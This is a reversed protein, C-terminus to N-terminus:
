KKLKVKVSNGQSVVLKGDSQVVDIRVSATKYGSKVIRIEHRGASLGRIEFSGASKGSPTDLVAEVERASTQATRVSIDAGNLGAGSSSVVTGSLSAGKVLKLTPVSITKGNKVSFKQGQSLTPKGTSTSSNVWASVFGETGLYNVKVRYTDPRVAAAYTGNPKVDVQKVLEGNTAYATVVVDRLQKSSLGDIRGSLTGTPVRTKAIQYASRDSKQKKSKDVVDVRVYYNTNSTLKTLVVSTATVPVTVTKAGKMEKNKAYHVRYLYNAYAAPIETPLLASLQTVEADATAQQASPETAPQESAPAPQSPPVTEASPEESPSPSESVDPSAPPTESTAPPTSPAESEPVLEDELPLSMPAMAPSPTDRLQPPAVWSVTVKYPQQDSIRLGTPAPIGYNSTKVKIEKSSPGQVVVPTYDNSTGVGGSDTGYQPAAVAASIRYETAKDLGTLVLEEVQSWVVKAKKTKMNYARIRYGPAGSVNTFSLEVSTSAKNSVVLHSPKTKYEYKTKGSVRSSWSQVVSSCTGTTDACARIRFYYTKNVSLGTVSTFPKSSQNAEWGTVKKTKAGSFSSSTAYQVQYSQANGVRNWTLRVVDAGQVSAKAGGVAAQAPTIAAVTSGILTLAAVGALARRLWRSSRPAEFNKM